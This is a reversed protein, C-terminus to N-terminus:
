HQLHVDTEVENEMITYSIHIVHTRSVWLIGCMATVRWQVRGFGLREMATDVTFTDGDDGDVHIVCVGMCANYARSSM